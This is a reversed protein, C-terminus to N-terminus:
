ISVGAGVEDPAASARSRSSLLSHNAEGSWRERLHDDHRQDM